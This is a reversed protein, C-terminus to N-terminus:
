KRVWIEYRGCGVCKVQRHTKAKKEAWAHWDAYGKPMETHNAVNTCTPEPM